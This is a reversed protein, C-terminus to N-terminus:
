MRISVLAIFNGIIITQTRAHRCVYIYLHIAKVEYAAGGRVVLVFDAELYRFMKETVYDQCLANEFALYFKYKSSINEFCENDKKRGCKFPGCAGYVDVPLHKQLTKVYDERRSHTKCHSVIWGALKKKQALIATYNKVQPAPRKSM